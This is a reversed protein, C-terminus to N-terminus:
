RGVGTFNYLGRKWLFDYIVALVAIWMVQVGLVMIGQMIDLKGEALIVPYYAFYAFPLFHTITQLIQPYFELPMLFGGFLLILVEVIEQMGRFDTFWFASIGLIMKCLFSVIYAFVMSFILLILIPPSTTISIPVHLAFLFFLLVVFGMAGQIMRWGLEGIFHDVLHSFPKLIYNVLNGEQIEIT